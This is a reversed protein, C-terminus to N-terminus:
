YISHTNVGTPNHNERLLELMRERGVETLVRGDHWYYRHGDADPSNLHRAYGDLRERGMRPDLLLTGLERLVWAFIPPADPGELRPKDHDTLDTKFSVPWGVRGAEIELEDFPSLLAATAFPIMNPTM